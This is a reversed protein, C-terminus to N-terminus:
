SRPCGNRGKLGFLPGPSLHHSPLAGGNGDLPLFACTGSSPFPPEAGRRGPNHTQRTATVALWAPARWTRHQGPPHGSARSQAEPTTM